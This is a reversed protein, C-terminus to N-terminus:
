YPSDKDQKKSEPEPKPPQKSVTHIDELQLNPNTLEITHDYKKAIIELKSKLEPLLPYNELGKIIKEMMAQSAYFVRNTSENYQIRLETANPHKELYQFVAEEKPLLEDIDKLIKVARNLLDPIRKPKKLSFGVVNKLLKCYFACVVLDAIVNK